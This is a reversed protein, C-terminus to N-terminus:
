VYNKAWREITFFWKFFERVRIWIKMLILDIRGRWVGLRDVLNRTFGDMVKQPITSYITKPWIEWHHLIVEFFKLDPNPYEGFNLTGTRQRDCVYVFFKLVIAQFSHGFITHCVSLCVSLCVFEVSWCVQCFCKKALYCISCILMSSLFGFPSVNRVASKYIKSKWFLTQSTSNELCWSIGNKKTTKRFAEHQGDRTLFCQNSSM